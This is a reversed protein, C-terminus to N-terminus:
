RLLVMKLTREYDPAEMRCFYIGSATARGGDNTGDWVTEYSGADRIEDILIRVLRGSVDYIRIRVHGKEKLGFKLRTVPNFPNPFNDSLSTVKPIETDTIDGNTPDEFFNCVMRLFTNRALTGLSADRIHMFSHGVVLTRLQESEDNLQDTLIGAYYAAASYDPYQLAYQGSPRVELVDFDDIMPCGGDAYYALGDFPGGAVGTVLPIVTGGGAQGGTMEFYSADTVLVGCKVRLLEDAIATHSTALDQAAHDGMVLLNVNHQSVDMWDNLLKADNSKDSHETGDSITMETMDGSDHIVTSYAYSFNSSASTASVYAGIGNSCGSTPQNTDFRDPLPAGDPTVAEFAPDIYTQVLGDFTGRGHYDDIYLIGPVEQLSPLCTFEFRDGDSEGANYPYTTPFGDADYAKFYYEVMYGRTFLSDNLDICYRDPSLYGYSYRAQECLFIDWGGGDTNLWDGYTGELQSGTLDPKGDPGLFQVNCHFYVRAEGSALTDLGDTNPAAVQVVASDGPDIRFFDSNFSIDNAMDARCYSEMVLDDQPFTDQFLDLGRVFWQPGKTSYRYLRVNDFYPSPTHEACDGYSGYWADCFDFESLYLQVPYEGSVLDSIDNSIQIYEREGGFYLFSRDMWGGPCGDAVPRIAWSYFVLNALPLDRYITFRFITGGLEPLTSAPIDADQVENCGSSYRTIDIVPSYVNEQQCPAELGGAGQCFPTVPMGPYDDSMWPSGLFFVIQSTVNSGCPDKDQLNAALGAYTGYGEKRRCHWFDTDLDGTEASEFDEFYILGNFDSVTISDIICGGDSDYMGDKDSWAGDSVFHFRLKTRAMPALITHQGIKDVVGSISDLPVWTEGFCYEVITNDWDPESDFVGHYSLSLPSKFSFPDSILSQDWRNGYGPASWWTCMFFDDTDPRAGCWASKTGEIPVLRGYDGGDLGAFDDIHFFTDPQGGTVDVFYWGQLDFTEFDYWVICFTDVAVAAPARGLSELLAQGEEKLEDPVSVVPRLGRIEEKKPRPLADDASLLSVALISAFAVLLATKM